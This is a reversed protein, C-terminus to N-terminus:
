LPVAADCIVLQLFQEAFAEVVGKKCKRDANLLPNDVTKQRGNSKHYTL